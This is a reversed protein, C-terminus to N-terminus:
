SSDSDSDSDSDSGSGSGSEGGSSSSSSSSSEDGSDSESSSEEESSSESSSRGGGGEKGEDGSGEEGGSSSSESSSSSSEDDDDDPVGTRKKRRRRKKEGGEDVRAKKNQVSRGGAGVGGDGDGDGDGDMAQAEATEADVEGGTAWLVMEARKRKLLRLRWAPDLDRERDERDHELGKLQAKYRKLAHLYYERRLAPDEMDQTKTKTKTETETEPNPNASLLDDDDDAKIATSAIDRIRARASAGQLGALYSSIPPDHSPPIRLPDFLHKLLHTQKSKNFKWTPRSTHYLTLYDLSTHSSSSTTASPQPPAPNKTNEKKPKKAKKAPPDNAPPRPSPSALKLAQGAHDPTFSQDEAKQEALWTHYLQKVSDGDETKTEPTFAVSKRKTFRPTAAPLQPTQQEQHRISTEIPTGDKRKQQETPTLVLKKAKKAPTCEASLASESPGRKKLSTVSSGTRIVDEPTDKAYKLKLGLRKWAPVHPVIPEVLSAM